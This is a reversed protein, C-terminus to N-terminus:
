RGLGRSRRSAFAGLLSAAVLALTGPEPAAGIPRLAGFLGNAEDDPGASFYLEEASGASGGNGVTLAWLGDISLPGGGAADLQGVFSNTGLDFANIRGDGFNGVLLDGQIAGFSAPAIALGWPSDLSGMTGVRGLFNGQLDFANVLGQGPGPADDEPNNPDPHAYTVYLTGGLDQINFPAFGSPLNPDLFKGTLDPAGFTGKIVDIAGTNFNAAYLYTNGSITALAAGKYINAPDGTVLVEATGNTGLAPRWGSVTGDESVFLFRDGNFAGADPNFVQGTPNGTGGGFSPITVEVPLKSVADNASSVSYVLALGSGNASVWFPTPGYSVGWANKLNSDGLAATHLTTDNSVLNVQDVLFVGAVASPLWVILFTALCFVSAPARHLRFSTPM